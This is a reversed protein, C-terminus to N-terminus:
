VESVKLIDKWRLYNICRWVLWSFSRRGNKIERWQRLSGETNLIKSSSALNEEVWSSRGMFWEKEPTEFGIKDRRDLIANPVLGRMARRFVAKTLGEDTVLYNEPLSLLFAALDRNCFPVRSEISFTMSNRDGHRLLGPLGAWTLQSVLGRRLKDPSSPVQPSMLPWEILERERVAKMNLWPRSFGGENMARGFSKLARSFSKLKAPLMLSALRKVIGAASRNPWGAHNKLVKLALRLRGQGLLTLLRLHTYGFYGALMEDAGQGDLTVVVGSERALKFVRYQAYISTSGFPEGLRAILHPLDRFLEDPTATVKYAEANLDATALDVWPEESVAHGPAVFSFTKLAAEPQIHRVAYAVSTSDIGGSLAVGIPVDARLHLKVSKLFLRRTEEAAEDFSIKLPEPLAFTFYPAPGEVRGELDVKLWHGPPLQRVGAVLCSEGVDAIGGALYNYAAPWDLRREQGPFSLLAPLESALAFARPGPRSWYLPKIGFVDRACFITKKQTDFMALAFMGELRNLADPGWRALAALLVETDTRTRFVLGEAELERRLELYNYIDGNFILAYRGDSSLMPQHGTPSLDIIALRTQGMLLAPPGAPGSAPGLESGALHGQADFTLFGRDDPGREALAAFMDRAARPFDSEMGLPPLWAFIGCM